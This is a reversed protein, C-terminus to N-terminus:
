SLATDRFGKRNAAGKEFGLEFAKINKESSSGPSVRQIAKKVTSPSLLSTLRSVAFGLLVMNSLRIDGSDRALGDADISLAGNEGGAHNLILMGDGKLFHLNNRAEEEDMGILLDATGKPVLPSRYPGLKLHTLVSGGRLAMGHTESSLASLGSLFAAEGMVKTLLLIGQGGRGAIIIQIM